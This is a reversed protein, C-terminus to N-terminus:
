NRGKEAELLALAHHLEAVRKKIADKLLDIAWQPPRTTGRRWNRITVRIARNRLDSALGKIIGPYTAVPWPWLALSATNFATRRALPARPLPPRRPVGSHNQKGAQKGATGEGREVLAM